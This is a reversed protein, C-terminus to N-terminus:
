AAKEQSIEIRYEYYDTGARRRKVMDHGGYQSKRLDRMRATTAEASVHCGLLRLQLNVEHPAYWVGRNLLERIAKHPDTKKMPM